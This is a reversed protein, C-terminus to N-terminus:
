IDDKCFGIYDEFAFDKFDDDNFSYYNTLISKVIRKRVHPTGSLFNQRIGQLERLKSLIAEKPYNCSLNDIIMKDVSEIFEHSIRTLSAVDKFTPPDGKKYDDLLKNIDLGSYKSYIAAEDNKLISEHALKIENESSYHLLNNRYSILLDIFATLLSDIKFYVAVGMAKNYVSRGAGDFITKFRPDKIYEPKRNLETFYLDLGDVAFALYSKLVFIRTRSKSNELDRPNWSTSFDDPCEVEKQELGLNYLAILSTILFHNSQGFNKKFKKRAATIKM